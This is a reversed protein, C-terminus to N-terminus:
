LARHAEVALLEDARGVSLEADIQPAVIAITNWSGIAESLGM